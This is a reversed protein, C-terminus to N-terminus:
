LLMHENKLALTNESIYFRLKYVSNIYVQVEHKSPNSAILSILLLVIFQIDCKEIV